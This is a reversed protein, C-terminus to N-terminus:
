EAARPPGTPEATAIPSVPPTPVEQDAKPKGLAAAELAAGQTPPTPPAPRESEPREPAASAKEEIEKVAEPKEVGEGEVRAEEPQEAVLTRLRKALVRVVQQLVTLDSAAVEYFEERDLALATGNEICEARQLRASDDVLSWSGFAEGSAVESLPKGNVSLRVRGEVVIYLADAADEERYITDGAWIDVERAVEALALLHRPGVDKLLDVGQLFLVREVPTV